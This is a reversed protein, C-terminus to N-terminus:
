RVAEKDLIIWGQRWDPLSVMGTYYAENKVSEPLSEWAIRYRRFKKIDMDGNKNVYFINATLPLAEKQSLGPFEVCVLTGGNAPPNNKCEASGFRQDDLTWDDGQVGIVDGVEALGAERQTDSVSAPLDVTAPDRVSVVLVVASATQPLSLILGLLVFTVALRKM